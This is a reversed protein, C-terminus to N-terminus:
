IRTHTIKKPNLNIFISHSSNVESMRSPAFSVCIMMLYDTSLSNSAKVNPECKKKVGKETEKFIDGIPKVSHLYRGWHRSVRLLILKLPRGLPLSPLLPRGTSTEGRGVQSCLSFVNECTNLYQRASKELFIQM